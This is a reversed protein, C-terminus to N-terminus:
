SLSLFALYSIDIRWLRALELFEHSHADNGPCGYAKNLAEGGIDKLDALRLKGYIFFYRIGNINTQLLLSGTLCFLFQCRLESPV